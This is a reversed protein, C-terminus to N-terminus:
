ANDLLLVEIMQGAATAAQLAIGTKAGATAWAIARGSADSKVTAGQAVAEGAEIIATGKVDVPIREGSLGASRAVGICVADAGAQAAGPTVFRCAAVNGTLALTLTLLPSFQSM